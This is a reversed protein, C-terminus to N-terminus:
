GDANSRVWSALDSLEDRGVGHGADYTRFTVSAGIERFRDAARRAREPPIVDDYRGAAVFVPKHEVGAPALDAHSAALYGHLGACWAYRDPAELLLAFSMIAGQSFGLLGLRSPDLDYVELANSVSETVLDLSSRFDSEVPQSTHLDGRDLEFEYWTYGPGLPEPARFSVAALEGPFTQVLPLLDRESAGRGHLVVVAPSAGDVPHAPEVYEHELPAATSDAM